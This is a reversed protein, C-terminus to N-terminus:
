HNRKTKNRSFKRKRTQSGGLSPVLSRSGVGRAIPITEVVVDYTRWVSNIDRHQGMQLRKKMRPKSITTKVFQDCYLLIERETNNRSNTTNMFNTFGTTTHMKSIPSIWLAKVGPKVIIDCVCCYEDKTKVGTVPNSFRQKILGQFEQSMAVGPEYTTSVFGSFLNPLYSRSLFSVQNTVQMQKEDPVKIGRFVRIQKKVTPAKKLINKLIEIYQEAVQIYFDALKKKYEEEEQNYKRHRESWQEYEEMYNGGRWIGYKNYSTSNPVEYPTPPQYNFFDNNMKKKKKINKINLTREVPEPDMRSKIQLDWINIEPKNIKLLRGLGALISYGGGIEKRIYDINDKHDRFLGAIQYGQDDSYMNLVYLEIDTLSLLFDYQEKFFNYDIDNTDLYLFGSHLNPNEYIEIPAEDYYQIYKHLNSLNRQRRNILNPVIGAMHQVEVLKYKYSAKEMSDSQLERLPERTFSKM